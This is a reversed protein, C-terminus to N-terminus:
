SCQAVADMVTEGACTFIRSVEKAAFARGVPAHASSGLLMRLNVSLSICICIRRWQARFMCIVSVLTTASGSPIQSKM